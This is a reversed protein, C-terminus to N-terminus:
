RELDAQRQGSVHVYSYGFLQIINESIDFSQYQYSKM